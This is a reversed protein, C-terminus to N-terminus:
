NIQTDYFSLLYRKNKVKICLLAELNNELDSVLDHM